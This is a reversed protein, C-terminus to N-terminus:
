EKEKCSLCGGLSKNKNIIYPYLEYISIVEESGSIMDMININFQNNYDDTLLCVFRSNLRKAKIISDEISTFSFDIDTSLGGIRLINAQKLCQYILNKSAPIFYVYANNEKVISRNADDLAQLIEKIDIIIKISKDDIVGYGFNYNDYSLKINNENALIYRNPIQMEDLISCISSTFNLEFVTDKLKFAKLIANVLSIIDTLLYDNNPSVKIVAFYDLNDKATFYYYRKIDDIIETNELNSLIETYSYLSCVRRIVDFCRLYKKSKDNSLSIM